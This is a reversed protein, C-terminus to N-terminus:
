ASRPSSAVSPRANAGGAHEIREEARQEAPEADREGPGVGGRVHEEATQLLDGGLLEAERRDQHRRLEEPPTIPL